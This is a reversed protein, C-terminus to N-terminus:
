FPHAHTVHEGYVWDVESRIWAETVRVYKICQAGATPTPSMSLRCTGIRGRSSLARVREERVAVPAVLREAAGEEPPM